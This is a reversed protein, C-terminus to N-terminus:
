GAVATLSANDVIYQAGLSSGLNPNAAEAAASITTFNLGQFHTKSHGSSWIMYQFQYVSNLRFKSDKIRFQANDCLYIDAGFAM